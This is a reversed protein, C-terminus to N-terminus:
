CRIPITSRRSCCAARMRSAHGTRARAAGARARVLGRPQALAARRAPARRRDGHPDGGAGLVSRGVHPAADRRHERDPRARAPQLQGDDGRRHSAHRGAGRRHRRRRVRTRVAAHRARAPARVGRALGQVGRLRRRLPRRGRGDPVRARRGAASGPAGRAAGRSLQDQPESRARGRPSSTATLEEVPEWTGAEAFAVAEDVETQAAADIELFDEETLEGQAKSGHRHLEDIPSRTKWQEVEDKDRYLESDFMSHARFRYTRFEVFAPGGGDRVLEAARRAHRRAGRGRGHRRRSDRAHRLQRGERVSRDAVGLARARHGDRVPQERLLLAGAAAVARRPEDVRPVRGRGGRRRRLLLRDARAAAQMSDALALGVALPCAAASSPTAATSARTARRVPADLRRPRACCGEQKGYMEAMIAGTPFAACGARPRARPLHRGRQGRALLAPMAGAAVAEEGIYLHLFGRIKREGYLEACRRRSAASACWTPSCRAALGRPGLAGAREARCPRAARDDAPRTHKM